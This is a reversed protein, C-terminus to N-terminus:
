VKSLTDMVLGWASGMRVESGSEPFQDCCQGLSSKKKGSAEEGALGRRMQLNSSLALTPSFSPVTKAQYLTEPGDLRCSRGHLLGTRVIGQHRRWGLLLATPIVYMLPTNGKRPLPHSPSTM